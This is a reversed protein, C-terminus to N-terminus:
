RRAYSELPGAAMSPPRECPMSSRRCAPRHRDTQEPGQLCCAVMSAIAAAMLGIPGEFDHCTGIQRRHLHDQLLPTSAQARPGRDCLRRETARTV